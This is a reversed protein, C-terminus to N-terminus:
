KKARSKELNLFYKSSKEGFEYWDCKSRIKIGEAIDDYIKELELKCDNYEEFEQQSQIIANLEDLRKELNAKRERGAKAKTKAFAMALKRINYKLYVWKLHANFDGNENLFNTIMEEMKQVFIGDLLLSNNFKWSGPGPNTKKAHSIKIIIPSHDTYLENGIEAKDISQQLNNSVFFYDLRRQLFGSFHRQRFTYRRKKPNRIRWIDILDMSEKLKLFKAISNLKLSPNGGKAELSKDFFVNFDGGFIINKSPCIDFGKLAADLENLTKAQDAQANANYLNIM